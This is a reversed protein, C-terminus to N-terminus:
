VGIKLTGPRDVRGVLPAVGKRDIFAAPPSGAAGEQTAVSHKTLLVLARWPRSGAEVPLENLAYYGGDLGLTASARSPQRRSKKASLLQSFRSPSGRLEATELFEADGSVGAVQSRALLKCSIHLLKCQPNTLIM